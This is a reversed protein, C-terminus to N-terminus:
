KKEEEANRRIFDLILLVFVTFLVGLIFSTGMLYVTNVQLDNFMSLKQLKEEKTAPPAAEVTLEKSEMVVAGDEAADDEGAASSLTNFGSAQPASESHASLGSSSNNASANHNNEQDM